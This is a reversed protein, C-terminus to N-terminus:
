GRQVGIEGYTFPSYYDDDDDDDDGCCTCSNYLHASVHLHNLIIGPM